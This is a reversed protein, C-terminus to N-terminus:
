GTRRQLAKKTRQLLYPMEQPKKASPRQQCQSAWFTLSTWSVTWVMKLNIDDVTPYSGVPNQPKPTKSLKKLSWSLSKPEPKYFVNGMLVFTHSTNFLIIEPSSGLDGFVLLYHNQIKDFKHVKLFSQYNNWLICYKIISTKHKQIWIPLTLVQYYRSINQNDM